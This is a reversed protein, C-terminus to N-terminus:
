EEQIYRTPSRLERRSGPHRTRWSHSVRDDGQNVETGAYKAYIVTDGVEVQLAIRNGSQDLRGQVLQSSWGEQPKEQVTDPLVIGSSTTQEQAIAQVVVRDGLAKLKVRNRRSNSNQSDASETASSGM